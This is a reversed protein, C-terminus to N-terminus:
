ALLVAFIYFRMLVVATHEFVKTAAEMQKDIYAKFETYGMIIRHHLM